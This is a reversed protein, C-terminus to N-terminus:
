VYADSQKVYQGAVVVVVTLQSADDVTVNVREGFGALGLATIVGVTDVEDEHLPFVARIIESPLKIDVQMIPLLPTHM